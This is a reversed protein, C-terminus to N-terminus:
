GLKRILEAAVELNESQVDVSTWTVDTGTASALPREVIVVGGTAPEDIGSYRGDRFPRPM